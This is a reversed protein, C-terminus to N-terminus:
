HSKISSRVATKGFGGKKRWVPAGCAGQEGSTWDACGGGPHGKVNHFLMAPGDIKTPRMVTGGAGVHRYVGSLEAKPDVEIDTEVLQGDMERLVELATRLDLIGTRCDNVKGM